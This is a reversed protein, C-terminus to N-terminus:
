AQAVHQPKSQQPVIQHQPWACTPVLQHCGSPRTACIYACGCACAPRVCMCTCYTPCPQATGVICMEAATCLLTCAGLNAGPQPSIRSQSGSVEAAHLGAYHHQCWSASPTLRGCPICGASSRGQSGACECWFSAVIARQCSLRQAPISTRHVYLLVQKVSTVQAAIYICREISVDVAVLATSTSQIQNWL